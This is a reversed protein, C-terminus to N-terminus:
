SDGTCHYRAKRRRHLCLGAQSNAPLILGGALKVLPHHAVAALLSKSRRWCKAVVLPQLLWIVYPGLEMWERLVAGGVCQRGGSCGRTPGCCCARGHM